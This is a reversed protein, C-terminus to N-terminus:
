EYLYFVYIGTIGERESSFAFKRSDSSWSGPRLYFKGINSPNSGDSYMLFVEHDDRSSSFAILKEDPSLVPDHNIGIGNTLNRLKSGATEFAYIDWRNDSLGTFFIKSEDNTMQAGEEWISNIILRQMNSGDTGIFYIDKDWDFGSYFMIKNGGPTFSPNFGDIPIEIKHNDSGDNNM